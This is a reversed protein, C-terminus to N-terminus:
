NDMSQLFLKGLRPNVKGITKYINKSQIKIDDLELNEFIIIKDLNGNLSIINNDM